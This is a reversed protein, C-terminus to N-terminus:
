AGRWVKQRQAFESLVAKTRAVPDQVAEDGERFVPEASSRNVGHGSGSDGHGKRLIDIAQAMRARMEKITLVLERGAARVADVARALARLRDVDWLIVMGTLTKVVRCLKEAQWVALARSVTRVTCGVQAALSDRCTEARGTLGAKLLGIRAVGLECPSKGAFAGLEAAKTFMGVPTEAKAGTAHLKRM